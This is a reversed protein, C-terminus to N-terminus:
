RPNVELQTWSRLLCSLSVISPEVFKVNVNDPFSFSLVCTRILDGDYGEGADVQMLRCGRPVCGTSYQVVLYVQVTWTPSM